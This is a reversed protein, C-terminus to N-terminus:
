CGPVSEHGGLRRLDTRIRTSDFTVRLHQAIASRIGLHRSGACTLVPAIKDASFRQSIIAPTNIISERPKRVPSDFRLVRIWCFCGPRIPCPLKQTAVRLVLLQSGFMNLGGILRSVYSLRDAACLTLCAKFEDRIPNSCPRHLRNSVVAELGKTATQSRLLEGSGDTDLPL